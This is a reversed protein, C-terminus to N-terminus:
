TATLAATIGVHFDYRWPGPYREALTQTWSVELMSVLVCISIVIARIGWEVKAVRL